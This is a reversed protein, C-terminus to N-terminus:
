SFLSKTSFDYEAIIEGIKVENTSSIFKKHSIMKNKWTGKEEVGVIIKELNVDIVEYKNIAYENENYIPVKCEINEDFYSKWDFSKESITIENNNNTIREFLQMLEVIWNINDRIKKREGLGIQENKLLKDINKDKLEYSIDSKITIEKIKIKIRETINKDVFWKEFIDSINIKIKKMETRVKEISIIKKEEKPVEIIKEKKPIEVKRKKYEIKLHESMNGLDPYVTGGHINLQKLKEIFLEKLSASIIIIKESNQSLKKLCKSKEDLGVFIFDGSQSNIRDNKAVGKVIYSKKLLDINENKNKCDVEVCTKCIVETIKETTEYKKKVIKSLCEIKSDDFTLINEKTESFMFLAGDRKFNENCAFYLGVLPNRTLDILRTPLGFHQMTILKEYTSTDLSFSHPKLSLIESFLEHEYALFEDERSISPTVDYLSNSQGRYYNILDKKEDLFLDHVKSFDSNKGTNFIFTLINNDNNCYLREIKNIENELMKIEVTNVQDKQSKKLYGKIESKIKKIDDIGKDLKKFSDLKGIAIILNENNNDILYNIYIKIFNERQVKKLEVEEILDYLVFEKIVDNKKNDSSEKIVNINKINIQNKMSNKGVKFEIKEDIFYIEARKNIKGIEEKDLELLSYSLNLEKTFFEKTLYFYKRKLLKEKLYEGLEKDMSRNLTEKDMKGEM